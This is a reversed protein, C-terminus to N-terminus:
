SSLGGQAPKTKGLLPAAYCNRLRSRQKAMRGLLLEEARGKVRELEVLLDILEDDTMEHLTRDTM